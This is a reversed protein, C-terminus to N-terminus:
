SLYFIVDKRTVRARVDEVAIELIIRSPLNFFEENHKGIFKGKHKNLYAENFNKKNDELDLAVKPSVELYEGFHIEKNGGLIFPKFKKNWENFVDLGYINRINNTLMYEIDYSNIKSFPPYKWYFYIKRIGIPKEGSNVLNFKLNFTLIEEPMSRSDKTMLKDKKTKKRFKYSHSVVDIKIKPKSENYEKYRLLGLWLSIVLSISSIFIAIFELVM